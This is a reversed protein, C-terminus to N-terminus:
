GEAMVAVDDSAPWPTAVWWQEEERVFGVCFEICTFPDLRGFTPEPRHQRPPPEVVTCPLSIRVEPPTAGLNQTIKAKDTLFRLMSSTPRVLLQRAYISHDKACTSCIVYCDSNVIGAVECASDDITGNYYSPYGEVGSGCVACQRDPHISRAITERLTKTFTSWKARFSTPSLYTDARRISPAIMGWCVSVRGEEASGLSIGTAEYLYRQVTQDPHSSGGAFGITKLLAGLSASAFKVVLGGLALPGIVLFLIVFLLANGDKEGGSILKYMPQAIALALLLFIGSIALYLLTEKGKEKRWASEHQFEEKEDQARIQELKLNARSTLRVVVKKGRASPLLSTSSRVHEVLFRDLDDQRKRWQEM